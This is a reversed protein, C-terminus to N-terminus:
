RRGDEFMKETLRANERDIEDFAKVIEHGINLPFYATKCKDLGQAQNLSELDDHLYFKMKGLTYDIEPNALNLLRKGLIYAVNDRIQVISCNDGDCYDCRRVSTDQQSM